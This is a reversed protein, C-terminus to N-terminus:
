IKENIKKYKKMLKKIDYEFNRNILYYEDCNFSIENEDIPYDEDKFELQNKFFDVLFPLDNEYKKLFSSGYMNSIHHIIKPFVEKETKNIKEYMEKNILYKIDDLIFDTTLDFIKNSYVYEFKGIPLFIYAYDTKNNFGSYLEPNTDFTTFVGNRVKWGFLKEFIKNLINHYKINTSMPIRNKRRRIKRFNINIDSQFGRYIINSEWNDFFYKCNNQIEELKKNPFEFKDYENIIKFNNYKKM